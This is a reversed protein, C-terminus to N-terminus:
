PTLGPCRGDQYSVTNGSAPTPGRCVPSVPPLSRISKVADRVWREQYAYVGSQWTYRLTM